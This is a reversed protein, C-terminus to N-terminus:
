LGLSECPGTPPDSTSLLGLEGVFIPGLNREVGARLANKTTSFVEPIFGNIYLM